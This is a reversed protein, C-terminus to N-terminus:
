RRNLVFGLIKEKPLFRLAKEVDITSTKGAQVVVIVADVLPALTMVDAGGLVSPADFIIYRDPYRGKMDAILERMRPSSLIAASEQFPGGGSILTMKEIGPWM